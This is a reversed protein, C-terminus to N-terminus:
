RRGGGGGFGGHFGGHFGGDFDGGYYPYPFYPYQPYGPSDNIQVNGPSQCQTDAGVDMCSEQAQLPNVAGTPAAFAMPATAIAAAAAGAALLPTIYNLKIRM